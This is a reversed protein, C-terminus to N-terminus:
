KSAKGSAPKSVAKMESRQEADLSAAQALETPDVDDEEGMQVDETVDYVVDQGNALHLVVSVMRVVESQDENGKIKVVDGRRVLRPNKTEPAEKKPM